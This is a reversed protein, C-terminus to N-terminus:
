SVLKQADLLWRGVALLYANVEGLSHLLNLFQGFGLLFDQQLRNIQEELTSLLLGNSAPDAERQSATNWYIM